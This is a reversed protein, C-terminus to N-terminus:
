LIQVVKNSHDRNVAYMTSVMPIMLQHLSWICEMATLSSSLAWSEEPDAATMPSSM